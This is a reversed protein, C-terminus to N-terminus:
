FIKSKASRVYADPIPRSHVARFETVDRLVFTPVDSSKRAIVGHFEADHVDDLVFAPRRDDDVFSVDVDDMKIGKAHRVYFGYAPVVGFISPEPYTPQQEPVADTEGRGQGTDGPARARARDRPQKAAQALTM